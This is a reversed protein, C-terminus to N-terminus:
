CTFEKSGALLQRLRGLDSECAFFWLTQYGPLVLCSIHLVKVVYQKGLNQFHGAIKTGLNGNGGVIGVVHKSMKQLLNLEIKNFVEIPQLPSTFLVDGETPGIYFYRACHIGRFRCDLMNFGSTGNHM